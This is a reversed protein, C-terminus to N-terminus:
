ATIDEKLAEILGMLHDFVKEPMVDRQSVVVALDRLILSGLLPGIPGPSEAIDRSLHLLTRIHTADRENM